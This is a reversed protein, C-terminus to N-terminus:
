ALSASLEVTHRALEAVLREEAADLPPAAIRIRTTTFLGAAQLIAKTFRWQIKQHTAMFALAPLLRRYLAVAEERQGARHLQRIRAYTELSFTSLYTDVGRDLLEIFDPGATGLRLSPGAADRLASLKRCRDATEVKIWTFCSIERHLRAVLPVPLPAAGLDLDQIMLFGPNLAGLAHIAATYSAEDEYRIYALVGQCGMAIYRRALRLRTTPETSTAGGIVPVKGASEELLTAIIIEREAERLMEAEGAVAPALFGAADRALAHRAYRRLSAVDVRNDDSFPTAPVAVIGYLGRGPARSSDGSM